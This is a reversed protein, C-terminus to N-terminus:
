AKTDVLAGSATDGSLASATAPMHQLPIQQVVKQTQVDLLKVTMHHAQDDFVFVLLTGSAALAANAGKVAEQVHKDSPVAPTAPKTGDAAAVAPDAATLPDTAGPQAFGKAIAAATTAPSV